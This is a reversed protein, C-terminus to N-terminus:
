LLWSKFSNKESLILHEKAEMQFTIIEHFKKLANMIHITPCLTNNNFIIEFYNKSIASILLIQKSEIIHKNQNM